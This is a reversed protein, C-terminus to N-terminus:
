RALRSYRRSGLAIKDFGEPWFSVSFSISNRLPNHSFSFAGYWRSFKRIIVLQSHAGTSREIDFQHALGLTYKRNLRYSAGATLYNSDRTRIPEGEDFPDADHLFLHGLYYSTRPSRQVAIAGGAQSINGDHMNYNINGNVVTTDSILWTAKGTVHDAFNHSLRERRALGIQSLDSSVFPSMNAFDANVYPRVGFQEEPRSFFFEAPMDVNEEDRELLNVSADFRLFDVSHKNGPRGRKTQFRQRLTFNYVDRSVAETLDSDVWFVSVEPIVVHRLGDIDWIRSKVDHDVHWLQTSARFGAAGQVFSNDVEGSADNYVYKGIVTPAIHWGAWHLPLALEHRSLGFAYDDQDLMQGLRWPAYDGSYDPVDRHGPREAFRSIYGDHHYTFIEFIDAGAIHFGATPLETVTYDFDNLRWKGLFDFAWNDRQQKFYVLTEQGKDTDFEKEEWSELFEPDSLYSIEFTSQWDLPLFQRHQWRVRGRLDHEPSIDERSDFRGLRDQGNDNILYSRLNGFAKSGIYDFEVGAAPGRKSFEDLRLSSDVGAPSRLGLMSLLHWQSEFSAGFESSYSTHVTKIPVQLKTTDGSLRPWWFIPLDGLNFTLDRLDYNFRQADSLTVPASGTKDEGMIDVRGAGLWFHPQHFEDTSIKVNEAAFRNRSLRRIQQARVYFPVSPDPLYLRLCGDLLLARNQTFDYYLKEATIKHHGAQLVVDGEFYIGTVVQGFIDGEDLQRHNPDQETSIQYIEQQSYFVVGNQARFEILTDEKPRKQYVYIGGSYVFIDTGDDQRRSLIRVQQGLPVVRVPQLAPSEGVAPAVRASDATKTTNAPTQGLVVVAFFSATL